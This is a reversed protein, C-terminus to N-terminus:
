SPSPQNLWWDMNQSPQDVNGAASPVELVRESESGTERNGSVSDKIKEYVNGQKKPSKNNKNQKKGKPTGKPSGGKRKSSSRKRTNTSDEKVLSRSRSEPTLFRHISLQGGMNTEQQQTGTKNNPSNVEQSPPQPVIDTITHDPLTSGVRMEAITKDHLSELTVNECVTKASIGHSSFHSVIDGKLGEQASSSDSDAKNHPTIVYSEWSDNVPPLPISSIAIIEHHSSDDCSAKDSVVTTVENGEYIIGIDECLTKLSTQSLYEQNDECIASDLIEDDDAVRSQQAFHALQLDQQPTPSSSSLPKTPWFGQNSWGSMQDSSGSSLSSTDDKNSSLLKKM